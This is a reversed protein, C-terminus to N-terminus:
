ESAGLGPLVAAVWEADDSTSTAAATSSTTDPRVAAGVVLVAAVSAACVAGVRAVQFLEFFADTWTSVPPAQMAAAFARDALGAPLEARPLASLARAVLLDPDSNHPQTTTM